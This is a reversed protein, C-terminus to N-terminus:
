LLNERGNTDIQIIFEAIRAAGKGDVLEQMRRSKEQRVRPNDYYMELYSCIKEIVNDKRFDGAYEIAQDQQFQIVNDLQNDVFSYSITPTGMACLEYLTTGGASIAIDAKRMYIEIDNVSKWINVNGKCVYQRQLYEYQENYRGCIVDICEYRGRDIHELLQELIHYSDTGGSLLLLNKARSRICKARTEAFVSRLPVYSSGLAMQTGDMYEEYAFKKWYNAYCILGDVPYKFKNIDDIYITRTLKRVETLYHETVQYSDILMCEVNKHEIVHRLPEMEGDMDRWDSHLVACSYGRSKILEEANSDAMIFVLEHGKKKWEDAISLCRIMHGTAITGNMDVRIGLM